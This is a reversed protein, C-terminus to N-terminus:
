SLVALPPVEITTGRTWGLPYPAETDGGGDTRHGGGITRAHEVQRTCECIGYGIATESVAMYTNGVTM